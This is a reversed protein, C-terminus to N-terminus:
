SEEEGELIPTGDVLYSIGCEHCRMTDEDLEGNCQGCLWVQHASPLDTM